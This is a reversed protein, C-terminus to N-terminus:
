VPNGDEPNCPATCTNECNPGWRGADCADMCDPSKLGTRCYMGIKDPLGFLLNRCDTNGADLDDCSVTCRQGVLGDNCKTSCSSGMWGPKCVCQGDVCDGRESCSFECQSECNPGFRDKPCERVFLNFIPHWTRRRRPGRYVEYVGEDSQQVNNLRCHLVDEGPNNECRAPQNANGTPLNGLDAPTFRWALQTLSRAVESGPRASAELLFSATDVYTTYSYFENFFGSRETVICSVRAFILNADSPIIDVLFNGFRRGRGSSPLSAVFGGQSLTNTKLPAKTMRVPLTNISWRGTSAVRRSIDVDASVTTVGCVEVAGGKRRDALPNKVYCFADRLPQRVCGTQCQSGCVVLGNVDSLLSFGTGGYLPTGDSYDESGALWGALAYSTVQWNGFGTREHLFYIRNDEIDLCAVKSPTGDTHPVNRTSITPGSTANFSIVTVDRSVDFTVFIYWNENEDQHAAICRPPNSLEGPLTQQNMESGTSFSLVRFGEQRVIILSNTERDVLVSSRVQGDALTQTAVTSGDALNVYVLTGINSSRYTYALRDCACSVSDVTAPATIYDTVTGDSSRRRITSGDTYFTDSGNNCLKRNFNNAMTSVLDSDNLRIAGGVDYYVDQGYSIGLIGVLLLLKTTVM